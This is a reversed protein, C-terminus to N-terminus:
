EKTSYIWRRCRLREGSVIITEASNKGNKTDVCKEAKSIFIRLM